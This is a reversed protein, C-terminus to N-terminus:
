LRLGKRKLFVVITSVVVAVLLHLRVPRVHSKGFGKRGGLAFAEGVVDDGGQLGDVIRLNGAIDVLEAEDVPDVDVVFQQTVTSMVSVAGPQGTAPSIALQTSTPPRPRAPTDPTLTLTTKSGGHSWLRMDSSARTESSM